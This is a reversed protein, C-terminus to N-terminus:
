AIMERVAEPRGSRSAFRRIGAAALVARLHNVLEALLVFGVGAGGLRHPIFDGASAALLLIWWHRPSTRLLSATVIAYPPFLVAAGVGPFRFWTEASAGLTCAVLVIAATAAIRRPSSKEPATTM